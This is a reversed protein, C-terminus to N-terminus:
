PAPTAAPLTLRFVSGGGARPHVSLTGHQIRAHEAAIALGLGSGDGSRNTDLRTFRDFITDVQDAPVGPGRDMVEIVVQAGDTTAAIDCRGGGHRIANSVLNALVRGFRVRDACMWADAAVETTVVGHDDWPAAVADLSQAVSLPELEPTEEGADLRALELLELVLDRFRHVDDVLLEAPRRASDDLSVLHAELLSAASVMGALPTRLEHAVDATFRRERDSSRRLTEVQEEVATAMHNFSAALSGFEDDAAELRTDLLGEALAQSAEAARRVPRLTRRAVAFGFVGALAVALLWALLLARRHEALSAELEGSPFFFYLDTAGDAEVSGGVVHFPRGDVHVDATLVDGSAVPPVPGDPVDEVGLAPSSSFTLGEGVAVTSFGGRRQIDAIMAEFGELSLDGRASALSTRAQREAQREFADRRYTATLAYSTTALVGGSLAAVAVFAVLLRVRFSITM